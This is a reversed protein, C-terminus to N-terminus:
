IKNKNLELKMLLDTQEDDGLKFIHQDFEFFGQRKYFNLAKFNNEWVGLWIYDINRQEAVELARNYLTLGVKKGHFEDLVYIREIEMAKSDQLETQSLEFNLKLYGIVQDNQKAFYFQSDHNNLESTLKELSFAGNLYQTMNEPTGGESFTSLFTERGIAQLEKVENLTVSTITISEM